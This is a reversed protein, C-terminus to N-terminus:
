FQRVSAIRVFIWFMHKKLTNLVINKRLKHGISLKTVPLNDNYCIKDDYGTDNYLPNDTSYTLHGLIEFM